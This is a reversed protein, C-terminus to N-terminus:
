KSKEKKSALYNKLWAGREGIKKGEHLLEDAMKSLEGSTLKPESVGNERQKQFEAIENATYIKVPGNKGQKPIKQSNESATEIKQKIESIKEEDSKGHNELQTLERKKKEIRGKTKRGPHTMMDEISQKLRHIKSKQKNTLEGTKKSVSEKEQKPAHSLYQENDDTKGTNKLQELEQKLKEIKNKLKETQSPEILMSHIQQKLIKIKETDEPFIEMHRKMKGSGKWMDDIADERFFGKLIGYFVKEQTTDGWLKEPGGPKKGQALWQKYVDQSHTNPITVLVLDDIDDLGWDRKSQALQEEKHQKQAQKGGVYLQIGFDERDETKAKVGRTHSPIVLFGDVKREYDDFVDGHYFKYPANNDIEFKEMQTTILKEAVLGGLYANNTLDLKQGRAVRGYGGKIANMYSRAPGDIWKPLERKAETTAIQKDLLDRMARKAEAVVFEKKVDRPLAKDLKYLLEWEGDTALDGKTIPVTENKWKVNMNEDVYYDKNKENEKHISRVEEKRDIAELKVHLWRMIERKKEQLELVQVRASAPVMEELDKEQLRNRVERLPEDAREKAVDNFVRLTDEFHQKMYVIIDLLRCLRM